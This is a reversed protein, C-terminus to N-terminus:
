AYWKRAKEFVEVGAGYGLEKLLECMLIDASSHSSEEDYDFGEPDTDYIENMKALFGAPTM